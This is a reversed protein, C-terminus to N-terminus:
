VADKTFQRNYSPIEKYLIDLTREVLEKVDEPEPLLPDTNSTILPLPEGGIEGVYVRADKPYIQTRSFSM